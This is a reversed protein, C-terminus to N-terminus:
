QFAIQGRTIGAAGGLVIMGAIPRADDAAPFRDELPRMVLKGLPSVAILVLAVTGALALMRGIRPARTFLLFVGIATLVLAVSSPAALFWFIKSLFFFM